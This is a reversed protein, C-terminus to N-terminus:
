PMKPIVKEFVRLSYSPIHSAPPFAAVIYFYFGFRVAKAMVLSQAKIKQPSMFSHTSTPFSSGYQHDTLSWDVQESKIEKDLPLSEIWPSKM